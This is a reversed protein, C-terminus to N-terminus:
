KVEEMMEIEYQYFEGNLSYNIRKKTKTTIIKKTDIDLEVTQNLDKIWLKNKTAHHEEFTLELYMKPNDRKLSNEQYNYINVTQDIDKEIYFLEKKEKNYNAVVTEKKNNITILVKIEQM